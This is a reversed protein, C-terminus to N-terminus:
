ETVEDMKSGCRPCCNTRKIVTEYCESCMFPYYDIDNEVAVWRGRRESSPLDQLDKAMLRVMYECEPFEQEYWDCIEIAAQRSITDDNMKRQEGTGLM